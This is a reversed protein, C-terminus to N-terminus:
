PTEETPADLPPTQLRVRWGGDATPGADLTSGTLAARERMGVLGLGSGAAGPRGATNTVTITVGNGHEILVTSAAGAAHRRSNTLAEQVMRYAASEAIPGLPVPDGTEVLEVELGTSRLEDVLTPIDALSPAPALDAPGDTRLLGITQRLNELARKAERGATQVYERSREPDSGLLSDAAQASVIIGTLHHAAIDHLERAMLAREAAVAERANRQQEREALEARDRLATVTRARATVLEAGLAPLLYTLAARAIGVPVVWTLPVFSGAAFGLATITASASALGAIVIYTAPAPRYRRVSYAAVMVGVSGISLEGSSVAILAIDIGAVAILTAVPLRGRALLLVGQLMTLVASIWNLPEPLLDNAEAGGPTFRAAADMLLAIVGLVAVAVAPVILWPVSPEPASRRPSM